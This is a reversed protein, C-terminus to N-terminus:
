DGKGKGANKEKGKEKENGRGPGSNDVGTAPPVEMVPAATTVPTVPATPPPQVTTGTTAPTRHADDGAAAWLGAAVVAAVAIGGVVVALSRRRRRPPAPVDSEVSTAIGGAAIGPVTEASAAADAAVVAAAPLVATRAVVRPEPSPGELRERVSRASPRLEADRATMAQLLSPWPAPLSKLLEPDRTLRAAGAEAPPGKFARAGTLCELLVLGLAYIDAGPGIDEGRLQEPALYAMTGITQHTATLKAGDVLRVIGFDALRLTGRDDFMLNSPKVDRHVIRREHICELAAAAESGIEAVRAPELPGRALLELVSSGDLLEMVLYLDAGDRGADLLRVLNPHEVSALTQVELEFRPEHEVERLVKVAVERDLRLDHARYVDAM